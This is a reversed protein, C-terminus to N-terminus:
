TTGTEMNPFFVDGALIQQLEGDAKKLVLAGDETLGAFTGQIHQDRLRVIMDEKKAWELWKERVKEFGDRLFLVRWKEFHRLFTDFVHDPIIQSIVDHRDYVPMANVVAEPWKDHVAKILSTSPYPSDPMHESVNIGVGVVLYDTEGAMGAQGELLIGSVKRGGVLVDNPWKILIEAGLPHAPLFEAVTEAVALAAVFGFLAALSFKIEPKLLISFYLNGVPSHWSRGLRGRGGTQQHARVVFGERQGETAAALCDSNTSETVECCSVRYFPPYM